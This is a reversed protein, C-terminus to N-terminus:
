LVQYMYLTPPRRGFCAILPRQVGSTLMALLLAIGSLV